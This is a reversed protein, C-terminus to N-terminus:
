ILFDRGAHFSCYKEIVERVRYENAFELSDDNLYLTMESGVTTKNGKEMEYETGGESAWHVPEAGDKYSLHISTFRM